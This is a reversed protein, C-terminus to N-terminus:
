AIDTFEKLIEIHKFLISTLNEISLFLNHIESFGAWTIPPLMNYVM